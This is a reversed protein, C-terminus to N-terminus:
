LRASIEDALAKMAARAFWVDLARAVRLGAEDQDVWEPQILVTGQALRTLPVIWDIPHVEELLLLLDPRDSSKLRSAARDVTKAARAVRSRMFPRDAQVRDRLIRLTRGSTGLLTGLDGLNARILLERLWPGPDPSSGLPVEAGFLMLNYFVVTLRSGLQELAAEADDFFAGLSDHWKMQSLSPTHMIQIAVRAVSGGFVTSWLLPFNGRVGSPARQLQQHAVHFAAMYDPQGFDHFLMFLEEEVADFFRGRAEESAGDNEATWRWLYESGLASLEVISRDSLSVWGVKTGRMPDSFEVLIRKLHPSPTLDWEVQPEGRLGIVVLPDFDPDYLEVKTRQLHSEWFLALPSLGGPPRRGTAAVHEFDANVRRVTADFQTTQLLGFCSFSLDLYHQREHIILSALDGPLASYPVEGTLYAVLPRFREGYVFTLDCVADYVLVDDAPHLARFVTELDNLHPITGM